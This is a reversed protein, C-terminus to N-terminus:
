LSLEEKVKEVIAGYLSPMDLMGVLDGNDDIVFLNNHRRLVFRHFAENLSENQNIMQIQAPKRVMDRVKHTRAIQVLNDWPTSASQMSQRLKDIVYDFQEVRVSAEQNIITDYNPQMSRIVDAPSLKGVMKGDKDKVILIRTQRKGSKFEALANGLATIADAFPADIDISYLNAAPVMLDKVLRRYM